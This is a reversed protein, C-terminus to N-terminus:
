KQIKFKKYWAHQKTIIVKEGRENKIQFGNKSSIIIEYSKGACFLTTTKDGITGLETKCIVCKTLPRSPQQIVDIGVQLALEIEIRGGTSKRWNSICYIADCGLMAILDEKMYSTWSRNHNHPLDVPSVPIYGLKRVEKKAQEFLPKYEHEQMKGIEGAIYCKKKKSM